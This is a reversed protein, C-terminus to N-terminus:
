VKKCLKPSHFYDLKPYMEFNEAISSSILETIGLLFSLDFMHFPNVGM